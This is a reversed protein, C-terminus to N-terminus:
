ERSLDWHDVSYLIEGTIHETASSNGFFMDNSFKYYMFVVCVCLCVCSIACSTASDIWRQSNNVRSLVCVYVCPVPFWSCSTQVYLGLQWRCPMSALESTISSILHRWKYMFSLQVQFFLCFVAGWFILDQMRFKSPSTVLSMGNNICTIIVDITFCGGESGTTACKNNYYWVLWQWRLSIRFYESM